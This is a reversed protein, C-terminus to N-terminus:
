ALVDGRRELWERGHREEECGWDEEGAGAWNSEGCGGGFVGM